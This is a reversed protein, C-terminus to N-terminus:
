LRDGRLFSQFVAVSQKHQFSIWPCRERLTVTLDSVGQFDDILEGVMQILYAGGCVCAAPGTPTDTM